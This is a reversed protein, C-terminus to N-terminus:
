RRSSTVTAGTVDSIFGEVRAPARVPSGVKRTTGAAVAAEHEKEKELQDNSAVAVLMQYLDGRAHATRAEAEQDQRKYDASMEAEVQKFEDSYHKLTGTRDLVSLDLYENSVAEAAMKGVIRGPGGLLTQGFQRGPAGLHRKYAAQSRSSLGSGRRVVGVTKHFPGSPEVGM